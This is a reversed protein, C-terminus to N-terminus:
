EVKVLLQIEKLKEPNEVQSIDSNYFIIYFSSIENATMTNNETDPRLYENGKFLPIIKSGDYKYLLAGTFKNGKVQFKIKHNAEVFKRKENDDKFDLLIKLSIASM